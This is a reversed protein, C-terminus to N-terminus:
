RWLARWAARHFLSGRLLSARRLRWARGLRHGWLRGFWWWSPLGLGRAGALSCSVRQDVFRAEDGESAARQGKQGPHTRAISLVDDVFFIQRARPVMRLWLDYDMAFYLSADIPGAEHWLDRTFFVSPQPFSRAEYLMETLTPFRVDPRGDHGEPGDTLISTGVLMARSRGGLYRAATWLAGPLYLDDSNLWALIEGRARNLGENLAQSQGGDPHSRAHDLWPRYRDLIATSGDSSGGDLVQYELAPYEQLLVSRLAEELYAGQNYSPTVVSICPPPRPDSLSPLDTAEPRWPWGQREDPPAPLDAFSSRRHM